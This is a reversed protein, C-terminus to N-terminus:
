RFYGFNEADGLVGVLREGYEAAESSEGANYLRESVTMMDGARDWTTKDSITNENRVARRSRLRNLAGGLGVTAVANAKMKGGDAFSADGREGLL